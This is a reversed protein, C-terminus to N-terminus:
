RQQVRKLKVLNKVSGTDREHSGVAGCVIAIGRRAFEHSRDEHASSLKLPSHYFLPCPFASLSLFLPSSEVAARNRKAILKALVAAQDDTLRLRLPHPVHELAVGM